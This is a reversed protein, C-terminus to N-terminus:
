IHGGMTSKGADVHGIFVINVHERKDEDVQAVNEESATMAIAAQATPPAISSGLSVSQALGAQKMVPPAVQQSIVTRPTPKQCQQLHRTSVLIVLSQKNISNKFRRDLKLFLASSFNPLCFPPPSISQSLESYSTTQLSCARKELQRADCLEPKGSSCRM